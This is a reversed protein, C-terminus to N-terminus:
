WFHIDLIPHLELENDAANRPYFHDLDIFGVGTITVTKGVINDRNEEIWKRVTNIEVEFRTDEVFECGPNPAECNIYHDNNDTLKIKWDGDKYSSVKHVKATITYVKKEADERLSSNTVKQVPLQGISDVSIKIPNINIQDALDDAAIKVDRRTNKGNCAKTNNKKFCSQLLFFLLFFLTYKLLLNKM